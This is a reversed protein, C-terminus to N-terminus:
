PSELTDLNARAISGVGDQRLPEQNQWRVRFTPQPGLGQRRWTRCGLTHQRGHCLQLGEQEETVPDGGVHAGLM